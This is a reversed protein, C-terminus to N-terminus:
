DAGTKSILVFLRGSEPDIKTSLLLGHRGPGLSVPGDLDSNSFSAGSPYFKSKGDITVGYNDACEPWNGEQGPLAGFVVSAGQPVSIELVIESGEGRISIQESAVTIKSVEGMTEQEKIGELFGSISVSSILLLVAFLIGTVTLRFPLGCVASEEAGIQFALM